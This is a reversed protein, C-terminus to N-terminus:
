DAAQKMIDSLEPIDPLPLNENQIDAGLKRIQQKIEEYEHV